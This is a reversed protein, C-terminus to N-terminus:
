TSAAAQMKQMEEQSLAPPAPVEGAPQRPKTGAPPPGPKRAPQTASQFGALLAGAAILSCLWTSTRSKMMLKAGRLTSEQNSADQGVIGDCYPNASCRSWWNWRWRQLKTASM